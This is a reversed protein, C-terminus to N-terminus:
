VMVGEDDVVANSSIDNIDHQGDASADDGEPKDNGVATRAAKHGNASPCAATEMALTLSARSGAAAEGGQHPPKTISLRNFLGDLFSSRIVKASVYPNLSSTGTQICLLLKIPM